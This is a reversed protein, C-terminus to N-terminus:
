EDDYSLLFNKILTNLFIGSSMVADRKIFIPEMDENELRRFTSLYSEFRTLMDKKSDLLAKNTKGGEELGMKFAEKLSEEIEDMLFHLEPKMTLKM